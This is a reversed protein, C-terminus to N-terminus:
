FSEREDQQQSAREAMFDDPVSPVSLFFSDWSSGLPAIIRECGRARVEVQKVSDPLRLEAPIRVAQSRNSLFLRTIAM